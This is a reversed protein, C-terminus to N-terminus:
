KSFEDCFEPHTDLFATVRDRLVSEKMTLVDNKAGVLKEKKAKEQQLRKLIGQLTTLDAATWTSMDNGIKIKAETIIATRNADWLLSYESGILAIFAKEICNNDTLIGKDMKQLSHIASTVAADVTYNGNQVDLLTSFTKTLEKPIIWMLPVDHSNCWKKISDEGTTSRWIELLTSKNRAFSIKYIQADLDKNFQTLTTNCNLDKLGAYVAALEDQTCEINRSNLIEELIPKGNQLCDKALVGHQELALVATERDEACLRTVDTFAVNYLVQLASFWPKNLEAIAIMPVRLFSFLNELDKKAAEISHYTTGMVNGIAELFEYQEAVDVLKEKVQEETWTYIAGQMVSHLRDSLEEPQVALRTAVEKLKPSAEFLFARFAAAMVNKDQFAKALVVRIKGRGTLLQLTESMAGEIDGEQAIFTQIHDIVKDATRRLDESSWETEPLYKLVWFPSGSKVVAERVNHYGSTQEALQAASLGFIKSLYESYNQWTLSGASLYDTTMKGGCMSSVMKSITAEALVHPSQVSDTWTYKSNKYCSFVFGLLVGCAITNYYGYPARQLTAWLDGLSVKHGSEMENKILEALAAVCEAQKNGSNRADAIEGITTLDLIGALKLSNLVNTLQSNGSKRQIGATPAGDNCSKYATNTVVINEPAYKFIVDQVSSRIIKRLHAMGYISSNLITNGNYAIIKGGSVASGVWSKIITAAEIRYQQVSGTQGSDSAMEQKTIAALWKARNEDTLPTKVLAITLRPENSEAAKAQLVSQISVAQADSQVTVILLGLKYPSKELEKIIESLRTNISNTEACCVAIKMRRLTADNEDWAMKEFEQAFAGDKSFMMYRSYKKDNATLRSAFDTDGAGRFPLQIRVINNAGEDLVLIKGDVMTQLLDEIQGKNIVGALCTELCDKTAAIGDKAKRGSYIGKTSSMLALLLMATKFVRHANEDNEVLHRSEEYHRIFEAAKTDKDSFDSERTFFYDWLWEPTLWCAQSDPGEKNIYGVFGQETNSQDKMFRFMTRQSAAYNEAVRSLLKITMPHMPCLHEIQESIKDDLGSMDPLFHMINKIVSKREEKWHESMGNRINISGAILDFAADTSIHFEVHHFRHTILQYREPTIREVMETTRHVVFLMFFPQVKSFESLQQLITQEDSNAVYETFEDWIFFIGSKSLGNNEIVAAIWKKFTDLSDVLGWNYQRIVAATRQLTLLDGAELNERLEEVSGYDDGLISNELITNGIIYPATSKSCLRM